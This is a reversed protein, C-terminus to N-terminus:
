KSANQSMKTATYLCSTSVGKDVYLNGLSFEM